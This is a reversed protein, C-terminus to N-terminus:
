SSERRTKQLDIIELLLSAFMLMQLASKFEIPANGRIFPNRIYGNAGKFLNGLAEPTHKRRKRTEPKLHAAISGDSLPGSEPRFAEDM